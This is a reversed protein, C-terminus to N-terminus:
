CTSSPSSHQMSYASRAMSYWLRRHCRPSLWRSARSHAPTIEAVRSVLRVTRGDKHALMRWGALRRVKGRLGLRDPPLAQAVLTAQMPGPTRTDEPAPTPFAM